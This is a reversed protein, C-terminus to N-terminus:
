KWRRLGYFQLPSFFSCRDISKYSSCNPRRDSNDPPFTLWVFGAHVAEGMENRVSITNERLYERGVDFRGPPYRYREGRSSVIESIDSVTLASELFRYRRWGFGEVYVNEQLFSAGSTNVGSFRVVPYRSGHGSLDWVFDWNSGQVVQWKKGTNRAHFLQTKGASDFKVYSIVARGSVDWGFKIDNMLGSYEGVSDVVEASKPTIPLKYLQGSSRMWNILDESRAYCVNFNSRADTTGRWVWALHYIGDKDRESVFPYASVKKDEDSSGLLASVVTQWSKGDFKKIVQIGDGSGGSRYFFLLEGDFRKIFKPYTVKTESVGDMFNIMKLSKVDGAIFTRGYILSEAHVNGVLHVNGSRDSALVISNHSDWGRFIVDTAVTVQEGTNLNISTLSLRREANFYAVYVLVGVNIADISTYTGGWINDVFDPSLHSREVVSVVDSFCNRSLLAGFIFIVVFHFFNNMKLVLFVVLSFSACYLFLM